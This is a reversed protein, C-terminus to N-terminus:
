QCSKRIRVVIAEVILSIIFGFLISLLAFNRRAIIARPTLDYLLDFLDSVNLVWIDLADANPDPLGYLGGYSDPYKPKPIPFDDTVRFEYYFSHIADYEVKWLFEKEEDLLGLIFDTFVVYVDYGIGSLFGRAVQFEGNGVYLKEFYKAREHRGKQVYHDGAWLCIFCRLLLLRPSLVISILTSLRVLLM